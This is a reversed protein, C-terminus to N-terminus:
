IGERMYSETSRLGSYNCINGNPSMGDPLNDDQKNPLDNSVNTSFARPSRRDLSSFVGGESERLVDVDFGWGKLENENEDIHECEYEFIAGSICM